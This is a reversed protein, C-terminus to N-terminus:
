LTEGEPASCLGGQKWFGLRRGQLLGKARLLGRDCAAQPGGEERGLFDAAGLLVLPCASPPTQLTVGACGCM